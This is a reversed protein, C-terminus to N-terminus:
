GLPLKVVFTSGKGEQSEAWISGGHQEVIAQASALGVGSGAAQGAANSARRFREFIHPLDAAPIGIGQDSVRILASRDGEQEVQVTIEGGFPSYKVANSLLNALVRLLRIEDFQGWVEAGPRLTLHHHDTTAQCDAIAAQCLARLEIRLLRLAMQQGTQVNALDLLEEMLDLMIGTQKDIAALYELWGPEKKGVKRQLAQVKLKIVSLPNRLDHSLTALFDDRMQIARQSEQYLRANDIAVAALCAIETALELDQLGYRGPEEALLSLVGLIQGRARLPVLLSSAGSLERLIEGHRADVTAQQILHAPLTPQLDAEGTRLVHAILNPGEPDVPYREQLERLLAERRPDQAAIAVRDLRPRGAHRSLLDIVCWSALAPVCRQAVTRLTQQYDLSSSFTASIEALFRIRSLPDAHLHPTSSV